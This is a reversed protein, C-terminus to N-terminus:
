NLDSVEATTGCGVETDKLWIFTLRVGVTDAPCLWITIESTVPTLCLFHLDM